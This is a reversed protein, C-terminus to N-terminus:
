HNQTDTSISFVSRLVESISTIGQAVKLMGDHRMTIMGEKLAQARIDSVGANSLLMERNEESMLLIEFIGTRGRYGTNACLNCGTGQYFVPPPQKMEEEYANLEAATPQYATRCNTCIRRVMRQAVVGVLMPPFLSPEDCMNMLRLLVSVADNAHVSTLVLHGTVAAQVATTATERDRIEGVLIVDPDQRMMARLGSAFTMGARPNVQTQSIDTFRYEVPDEITLINRENHDLQNISTYLTTTKGSGTPGGVVIMGFPCNLMAQHKELAEPQFGLETLTFISQFKDLIRLTVREGHVTDTTAVRIDIDRDGARFTFQGDQPSRQQAIDMKALIKIRSVLEVYANLPLFHMDHLVGDIRYRVRLRNAQPEFHIDSARDRIAQEILLDLSEAIPTTANLDSGAEAEAPLASASKSVQKEIKEGSRYNLDIAWEIDAPIGVAVEIRMGTQVKLEEITQIDEADAMVVVLSDGIVDLPILAHKRAIDEPILRLADPHVMHRKLDILPFNLQLSLAQALEEAKLQGQNMLLSGLRGGQSQQRELAEALQEETIFRQAVLIEGLSKRPIKAALTMSEQRKM